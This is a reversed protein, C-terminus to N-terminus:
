HYEATNEEEFFTMEELYVVCTVRTKYSMMLILFCARRIVDDGFDFHKSGARTVTGSIIRCYQKSSTNSQRKSITKQAIIETSGTTSIISFDVYVLYSWVSIV